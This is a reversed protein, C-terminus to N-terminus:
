AAPPKGQPATAAEPPRPEAPKKDGDAEALAAIGPLVKGELYELFAGGGTSVHTFYKAVGFKEVAEATEGGGAVAIQQKKPVFEGITMALMRTGGSFAKKEFMGMPGNWIITKAKEIQKRFLTATKPGIDLAVDADGITDVVRAGAEDDPGSSVLHDVPLLFAVKKEEALAMIRRAVDLKDAETRSKGTPVGKAALFTYAMAGGVMVADLRPILNELVGIKDSVKAGGLLAVFPKPTSGGLLATVVEIEKKLLYGAAGRLITPIGAISAHARHSAGFADNVYVDGFSALERALELDNEEEGPHFRVNELMLIEPDASDRLKMVAEAAAPGTLDPALTVKVDPLLEQLRKACPALSYKEDRKGKPRGLHAILIPKGGEDLIKKLTPLTERIRRDDTVKGDEIPVNYDVRVLVRKGRLDLDDITLKM